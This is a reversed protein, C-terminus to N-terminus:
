TSNLIVNSNSSSSVLASGELSDVVSPDQSPHSESVTSFIDHFLHNRSMGGKRIPRAPIPKIHYACVLGVGELHLFSRFLRSSLSYSSSSRLTSGEHESESNSSKSSSM